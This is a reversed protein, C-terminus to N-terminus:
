LHRLCFINIPHSKNYSLLINRTLTEKTFYGHHCFYWILEHIHAIHMTDIPSVGSHVCLQCPYWFSSMKVACVTRTGPFWLLHLGVFMCTFSYIMYMYIRRFDLFMHLCPHNKWCLGIGMRTDAKKHRIHVCKDFYLTYGVDFVVVACSIPCDRIVSIRERRHVFKPPLGLIYYSIGYTTCTCGLEVNTVPSYRASSIAYNVLPDVSPHGFEVISACHVPHEMWNYVWQPSNLNKFFRWVAM